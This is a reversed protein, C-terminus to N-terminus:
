VKPLGLWFPVMSSCKKVKQMIKTKSHGICLDWIDIIFAMSDSCFWVCRSRLLPVHAFENYNQKAETRLPDREGEGEGQM